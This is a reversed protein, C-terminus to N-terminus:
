QAVCANTFNVEYTQTGLDVGSFGTSGICWLYTQALPIAPLTQALYEQMGGYAAIMEDYTKSAMGEELMADFTPDSYYMATVTSDTKFFRSVINPVGGSSSTANIYMDYKTPDSRLSGTFGSQAIENVVVNIGALSLDAQVM